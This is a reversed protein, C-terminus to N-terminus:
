LLTNFRGDITILRGAIEENDQLVRTLIPAVHPQITRIYFLDFNTSLLQSLM